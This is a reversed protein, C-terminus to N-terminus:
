SIATSRAAREFRDLRFPKPDVSPRKGTVLDAVLQGAGPGIGFGHGSFGSALYFGPIHAVPSIVPVADPTVDILGAWNQLIKANAFAPFARALNALGMRNFREAPTPDLIRVREFPSIDDLAWKRPTRLEEIFRGGIRVKLESWQRILSPAFDAFLRFSDPVISAVNANRMAVTYGGDLRKRFAFNSGGVPMDPVGAVPGIRAVSGLIKLQPFDIGANGAFLRTWAGGALVVTSCAITGRETVAASIRGATREIGRVACNGVLHAGLRAAARAIAPTARTPEARGDGPTYLGGLFRGHIGPLLSTLDRSGLLRTDIGHARAHELWAEYADMEGLTESLYSIGTQLFGTTDALREDLGRWLDLSSIALPLEVPDRGMQRVWGWNRSSQEAVILGKECLAVSVGREALFYATSVGIIGGGVIVVDAQAPVNASVVVAEAIMSSM